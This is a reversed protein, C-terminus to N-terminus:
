PGPRRSRYIAFREGVNRAALYLECGDASLGSTAVTDKIELDILEIPATFPISTSTRRAVFPRQLPGSEQTFYIETEDANVVPQRLNGTLPGPVRSGSGVPGGAGVDVVYLAGDAGGDVNSFVSFYLRSGVLYPDSEYSAGPVITDPSLASASPYEDTVRQRTTRKIRRSGIAGAAFYLTLGDGSETPGVDEEPGALAALRTIDTFADGLVRARFLDVNAFGVGPSADHRDSSFYLFDGAPRATFAHYAPASLSDVLVPPGWRDEVRCRPPTATDQRVDPAADTRGDTGGEPVPAPPSANPDDGICAALGGVELAAAVVVCLRRM